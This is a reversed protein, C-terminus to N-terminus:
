GPVAASAAGPVPPAPLPSASGVPLIRTRAGIRFSGGRWGVRDGLFAVPWLLGGILDRLPSLAIAHLVPRRLGAAREAAVDLLAVAGAVAGLVALSAPTRLALAAVAALSVPHLLIEGAYGAPSMRRRIRAWRLHRAAFGALRISGLGNRVPTSAVAARMGRRATEEGFVQDEALFRGLHAFGGIEELDRARFMMSKGVVCPAGVREMAAVGGMVYTNLQLSELAAGIGDGPVGIVPASVLGVGPRALLAAMERLHGRPIAVNSDSVLIVPFRARRALNALTDVKPNFGTTRADAHVGTPTSPHAISVRRAVDLAPDRPDASGFLVEYPGEHDQDFFSHLNSELSPDVGKLPKLVSVGPWSAPPPPAPRSRLARQCALMFAHLAVGAAPVLMIADRV